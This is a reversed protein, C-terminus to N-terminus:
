EPSALRGTGSLTLGFFADRGLLVCMLSLAIM